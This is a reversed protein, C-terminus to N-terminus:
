NKTLIKVSIMTAFLSSIFFWSCIGITNKYGVIQSLEKIPTIPRDKLRQKEIKAKKEEEIEEPTKTKLYNNYMKNFVGKGANTILRVGLISSIIGEKNKKKDKEKIDKQELDEEEEQKKQEEEEQKIEEKEAEDSSDEQYETDPTQNKIFFNYSPKNNKKGEIGQTNNPESNPATGEKIYHKYVKKFKRVFNFLTILSVKDNEYKEKYYLPLSDKEFEFLENLEKKHCFKCYLYGITNEFIGIIKQNEQSLILIGATFLIPLTTIWFIYVTAGDENKGGILGRYIIYHIIIYVIIFTCIAIIAIKTGVSSYFDPIYRFLLTLFGFCFTVIIFIYAFWENYVVESAM